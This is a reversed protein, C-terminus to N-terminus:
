KETKEYIICPSFCGALFFKLLPKMEANCDDSLIDSSLIEFKGKYVDIDHKYIAITQAISDQLQGAKNKQLYPELMSYTKNAAASRDILYSVIQGAGFAFEEPTEIHSEKKAVSRMKSILDPIKSAMNIEKLSNNFLDGLSFWINLKRKIENNWEFRGKIEDQKINSLISNYMMDDFMFVDIANIKSKYIYDYFARRYKLILQYMVDGGIVYEPKIVGFYNATYKGDKIKILSNNFITKVIIREFDFVTDILEPLFKDDKFGAGTFNTIIIRDDFRYRFLPVFDIDNFVLGSTTNVYNILYYNPLNKLNKKEFLKELVERYGIRNAESNFIKIIESNLERRDIVFPLPNPLCKRKALKEFNNLVLAEGRSFRYNVGKVGIGTRHKLFPKKDPFGTKFGLVGLGKFSLKEDNFIESQLYSSYFKEQEGFPVSKLYIRIYDKESLKLFEPLSVINVLISKMTAYFGDLRTRYEDVKEEDGFYMKLANKQYDSLRSEIIEIRKKRILQENAFKHDDSPKEGKKWKKIGYETKDADNFNFNFAVAFPSCSHIKQKSDFKQVKNMTIYDSVNQYHICDNWLQIDQNKGDYYDYSKGLELNQNVWDGKDNIEIFIHLGKSPQINWEMVDPIDEILSETFNILEKIM